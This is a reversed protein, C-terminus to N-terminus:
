SADEISAELEALLGRLVPDVALYKRIPGSYPTAGTLAAPPLAFRGREFRYAQERTLELTIEAPEDAGMVVPPRRDLLLTVSRAPAEPIRFTVSTGAAALRDLRPDGTAVVRELRARLSLGGDSGTGTVDVERRQLEARCRRTPM